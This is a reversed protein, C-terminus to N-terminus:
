RRNKKLLLKKIYQNGNEFTSIHSDFMKCLKNKGERKSKSLCYCNITQDPYHVKHRSLGKFNIEKLDLTSM